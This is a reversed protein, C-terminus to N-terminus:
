FIEIYGVTNGNSDKLTRGAAEEVGEAMIAKAGTLIRAVEYNLNAEFADNECEIHVEVKRVSMM